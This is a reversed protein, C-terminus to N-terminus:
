HIKPLKPLIWRRKHTTTPTTPTDATKQLFQVNQQGSQEKREDGFLIPNVIPRYTESIKIYSDQRLKAMYKKQEEPFRERLLADRVAAEDFVSDTSAQERADIRLIVIGIQDADYPASVQGVKVDRIAAALKPDLDAVKLKEAKGKGQTLAGPDSNEKALKDFDEGAILKNYIQKAQERVVGENRGAFSLFIESVSVTEPRTFKSQHADYYDKLEKGNFSWYLRSQIERFIVRDRTAQKRWTERLDKPDIGNKEMEAYLADVTKINNQKMIEALRQNIMADIESDMNMDKAKQLLLEENILNAIMEGQKEDVMRQAEDRKKGEAVYTDVLSKAERKIRSLTIVGDNVQAVVEDIVKSETEQAFAAPLVAAFILLSFVFYRFSRM